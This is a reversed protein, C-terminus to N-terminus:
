GYKIQLGDVFNLASLVNVAHEVVHRNHSVIVDCLTMMVDHLATNKRTDIQKFIVPSIALRMKRVSLRMVVKHTM